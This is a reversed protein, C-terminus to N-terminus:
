HPDTVTWPRDGVGNSGTPLETLSGTTADVAWVGIHGHSHVFIYKGSQDFYGGYQLSLNTFPALPTLAGTTPTLQFGDVQGDFNTSRDINFDYVFQGNPHILVGTPGHPTAVPSNATETLVGSALNISFVHLNDDIM